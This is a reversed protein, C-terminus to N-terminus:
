HINDVMVYTSLQLILIILKISGCGEDYQYSGFLRIIFINEQRIGMFAVKVRLDNLQQIHIDGDEM